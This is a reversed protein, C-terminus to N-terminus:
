VSLVSFVTYASFFTHLQLVIDCAVIVSFPKFSTSLIAHRSSCHRTHSHCLITQFINVSNCTSNVNLTCKQAKFFGSKSMTCVGSVRESKGVQLIPSKSSNQLLNPWIGKRRNSILRPLFQVRCM